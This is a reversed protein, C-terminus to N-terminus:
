KRVTLRQEVRERLKGYRDAFEKLWARRQPDADREALERALAAGYETADSQSLLLRVEFNKGAFLLRRTISSEIEARAKLEVEPLGTQKLGLSPDAQAFGRIKAVAQKSVDAIERILAKTQDNMGGGLVLARDLGTQKSVLEYLMAYGESIQSQKRDPQQASPTERSTKGTTPPAQSDRPPPSQTSRPGVCGLATLLAIIAVFKM